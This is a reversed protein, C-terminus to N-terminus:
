NKVQSTSTQKASSVFDELDEVTYRVSRGMKIFVPGQGTIRWNELCKTSLGLYEAAAATKLFKSM